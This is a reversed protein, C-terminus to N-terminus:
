RGRAALLADLREVYGALVGFATDLPARSTMDVGAAALADLPYRSSGAKLFDLYREAAGPAGALVPGALAHAAAIGTAYQFVYYNMYLHPFQAWLM